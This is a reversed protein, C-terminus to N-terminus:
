RKPTPAQRLLVYPGGVERSGYQAEIMGHRAYFRLARANFADCKLTVPGKAIAFAFQLLAAGVGRGQAGIDVFLNHVFDDPRWLSMMGVPRGGDIALYLTEGEEAWAIINSERFLEPEAWTFAARGARVYIEACVPWEDKRAERVEM